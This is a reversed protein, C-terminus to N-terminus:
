QPADFVYGLSRITRLPNGAGALKLARRLRGIWVDVTREDIAPEQKGIGCILDRRSLVRNSNEVLFRLLRFENPRLDVITNGWRARMAAMDITLNGQTLRDAAHLQQTPHLQLVRDLVKARDLPALIYDDAGAQLARRRDERDDDDLVMTIHASATRSDARLRRCMELGALHEMVWDVFMWSRGEVRRGPGDHRLHCFKVQRRDDEFPTMDVGCPDTLFITIAEM